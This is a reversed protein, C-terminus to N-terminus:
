ESFFSIINMFLLLRSNFGAVWIMSLVRFIFREFERKVRMSSRTTIAIM